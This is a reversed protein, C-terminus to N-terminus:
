VADDDEEGLAYSEEWILFCDECVGYAEWAEGDESAYVPRHCNSCHGMLPGLSERMDADFLDFPHHLSNM